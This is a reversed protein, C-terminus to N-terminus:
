FRGGVTVMAGDHLPMPAVSFWDDERLGRGGTPEASDPRLAPMALYLGVITGALATGYLIDAVLASRRAGGMAEEIEEQRRQPIDRAANAQNRARLGMVLGGIGAAVGTGGVVVGAKTRTFFPSIKLELPVPEGNPGRPLDDNYLRAAKAALESLGASDEISVTYDGQALVHGDSAVRAMVVRLEGGGTSLVGTALVENLEAWRAISSAPDAVNGGSMSRDLAKMLQELTAGEAASSLSLRMLAGPAARQKEQHLSHGLSVLSVHHESPTLNRVEIPTIGRFVGNIYVRANTGDVIIELPNRSESELESRISEVIERIDPPFMSGDFVYDRRFSLLRRINRRAGDVDGNFYATAALLAYAELMDGFAVTLDTKEFASIADELAHTAETFEFGEYAQVGRRYLRMAEEYSEQRAEAAAGEALVRLDVFEVRHNQRVVSELAYGITATEQELGSDLPVAVASARYGAQATAPAALAGALTLAM